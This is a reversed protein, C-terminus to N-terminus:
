EIVMKDLAAKISKVESQAVQHFLLVKLYEEIEDLHYQIHRKAYSVAKPDDFKVYGSCKEPDPYDPIFARVMTEKPM